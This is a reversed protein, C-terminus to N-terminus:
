GPRHFSAAACWLCKLRGEQGMKEGKEGNKHKILGKESSQLAIGAGQWECTKKQPFLMDDSGKM